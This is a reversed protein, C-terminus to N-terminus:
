IANKYIHWVHNTKVFVWNYTMKRGFYKRLFFMTDFRKMNMLVITGKIRHILNLFWYEEEIHLLNYKGNWDLISSRTISFYLHVSDKKNNWLSKCCGNEALPLSFECYTSHLLNYLNYSIENTWIYNLANCLFLGYTHSLFFPHPNM